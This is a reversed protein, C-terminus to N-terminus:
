RGLPSVFANKIIDMTHMGDISLFMKLMSPIDNNKIQQQSGRRRKYKAGTM